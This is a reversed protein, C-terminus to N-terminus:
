LCAPESRYIIRHEMDLATSCSPEDAHAFVAIGAAQVDGGRRSRGRIPLARYPGARLTSLGTRGQRAAQAVAESLRKDIGFWELGRPVALADYGIEPM